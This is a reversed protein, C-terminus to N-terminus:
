NAGGFQTIINKAMKLDKKTISVPYALHKTYKFM